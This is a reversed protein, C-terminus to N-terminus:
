NRHILLTSKDAVTLFKMATWAVVGPKVFVSMAWRWWHVREHFGTAYCREASTHGDRSPMQIRDADPDYYAEGRVDYFVQADGPSADYATLV